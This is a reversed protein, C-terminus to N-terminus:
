THKKNTKTTTPLSPYRQEKLRLDTTVVAPLKLEVTELGGDVEPVATAKGHAPALKTAFTGQAWGMLAALMQGTQNSDDDIAQKGVIVLQPQEAEALKALLKAVALSQVEADTRVLIGRDAGM